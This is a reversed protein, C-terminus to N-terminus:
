KRFFCACFFLITATVFRLDGAGGEKGVDVHRRGSTAVREFGLAAPGFGLDEGGAWHRPSRRRGRRRPLEELPEARPQALLQAPTALRAGGRHHAHVVLREALEGEVGLRDDGLEGDDGVLVGRESGPADGFDDAGPDGLDNRRQERQERASKINEGNNTLIPVLSFRPKQTDQDHPSSSQPARGQPQQPKANSARRTFISLNKEKSPNLYVM